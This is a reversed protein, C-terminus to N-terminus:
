LFYVQKVTFTALSSVVADTFISFCESLIISPFKKSRFTVYFPLVKERSLFRVCDITQRGEKRCRYAQQNWRVLSLTFRRMLRSQNSYAQHPRLWAKLKWLSVLPLLVATGLSWKRCGNAAEMRLSSCNSILFPSVQCKLNPLSVSQVENM